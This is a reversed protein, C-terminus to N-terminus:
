KQIQYITTNNKTLELGKEQLLEEIKAQQSAATLRITLIVQRYRLDVMEKKLRGMETLKKACYYRNSIFIIILCFILLFLKSQKIFFDETLVRGGFLYSLSFKKKWQAIASKVRLWGNEKSINEM